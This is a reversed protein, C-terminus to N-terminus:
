PGACSKSLVAKAASEVLITELADQFVELSAECVPPVCTSKVELYSRAIAKAYAQM